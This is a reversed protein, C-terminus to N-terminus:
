EGLGNKAESLGKAYVLNGDDDLGVGLGLRRRREWLAEENPGPQDMKKMFWEIWKPDAEDPKPDTM